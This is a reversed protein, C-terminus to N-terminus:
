DKRRRSRDDDNSPAFACSIASATVAGVIGADDVEIVADLAEGASDSRNLTALHDALAQLQDTDLRERLQDGMCDAKGEPIGIDRLNDEIRAQAVTACGTITVAALTITGLATLLTRRM